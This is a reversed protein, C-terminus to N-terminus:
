YLEGRKASAVILDQIVAGGGGGEAAVGVAAGGRGGGWGGGGGVCGGRDGRERDRQCFLPPPALLPVNSYDRIANAPRVPGTLSGPKKWVTFARSQNFTPM